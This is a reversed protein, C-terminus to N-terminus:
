KEDWNDSCSELYDTIHRIEKKEICKCEKLVEQLYYNDDRKLVSDLAIVALCTHNSDVKPNVKYYFDTVDDGYSKIKTKLFYIYIYINISLSTRLKKIDTSFKDWITNYKELLGDDEILYYM